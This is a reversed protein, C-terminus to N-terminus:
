HSKLYKAGLNELIEFYDSYVVWGSYMNDWEGKFHTNDFSLPFCEWVKDLNNWYKICSWEQKFNNPKYLLVKHYPDCGEVNDEDIDM